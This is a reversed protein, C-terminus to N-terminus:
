RRGLLDVVQRAAEVCTSIKGSFISVVRDDLRRVLTPRSDTKDVDPLVARVTFLSGVHEAKDFGAFYEEAAAAFSPFNTPSPNVHLGSDLLRQLPAPVLPVLGVTTSHIAHRVNGTLFTDTNAIPDVCMFPGDLIVVSANRYIAPLRIVPKECVEFQYQKAADPIAIELYNLHAYTALVLHHFDALDGTEVPTRLRVRVGASHLKRWCLRRLVDVDIGAEPIRLALEVAARHLFPPYEETYTLGLDDCFSIFEDGTVLSEQNAIAVYHHHTSVVAERYEETFSRAGARAARATDKSRPYHYGRHLRRQNTSSAGLLLDSAREFLTVDHGARAVHLAATVGFIGGGVM